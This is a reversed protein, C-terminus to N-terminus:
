LDRVDIPSGTGRYDVSFTDGAKSPHFRLRGYGYSVAFEGVAPPTHQDVEVLPTGSGIAVLVPRNGSTAGEHSTWNSVTDTSVEDTTLVIGNNPVTGAMWANYLATVDFEYWAPQQSTNVSSEPVLNYSPQAGWNVSAASWSSTVRHVRFVPNSHGQERYLRVKAIGATLPLGTLDFKLFARYIYSHFTGADDRGAALWTSASYDASPMGQYVYTDESIPATVQDGVDYVIITSPDDKRPVEALRVYPDGSAPVTISEGTILVSQDLDRFEDYRYNVPPM